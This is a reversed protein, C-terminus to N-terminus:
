VSLAAGDQGRPQEPLLHLCQKELLEKHAGCEAPVNYTLITRKDTLVGEGPEVPLRMNGNALDYSLESVLIHGTAAHTLLEQVLGVTHGIMTERRPTDKEQKASKWLPSFFVDGSHVALRFELQQANRAKQLLALRQMLHLFLQGCCIANFAHEDQCQRVDFAVLARDGSIQTVVGRYLRSAQRLYFQYQQLLTSLTAPHLLEVASASNVVEIALVTAMRREPRQLQEDSPEADPVGTVALKEQLQRQYQLLDSWRQQLQGVEDDRDVTIFAGEDGVEFNEAQDLLRLIPATIGECLWWAILGTMLLSAALTAAALYLVRTRQEEVQSDDFVFIVQGAVSDQVTIPATYLRGKTPVGSGPPLTSALVRKDVDTITASVFGPEQKLQGLVVNLGLLDNALVLETVSDATQKALITAFDNAQSELTRQFSQQALLAFGCISVIVLLSFVVTFKQKISM